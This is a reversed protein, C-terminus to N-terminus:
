QAEEKDVVGELFQNAASVLNEPLESVGEVQTMAVIATGGLIFKLDSTSPYASTLLVFMTLGLFLKGKHKFNKFQEAGYGEVTTIIVFPIAIIVGLIFIIMLFTILNGLAIYAWILLATTM